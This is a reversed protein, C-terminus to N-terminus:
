KFRRVLNSHLSVLNENFAIYKISPFKQQKLTPLTGSFSCKGFIIYSATNPLEASLTGSVNSVGNINLMGLKGPFRPLTGSLGVSGDLGLASMLTSMEHPISGSLRRLSRLMMNQVRGMQVRRMRNVVPISGSILWNFSLQFTGDVDWIESPLTGSLRSYSIGLSILETISHRLSTMNVIEVHLTGSLRASALRIKKLVPLEALGVSITGSIGRRAYIEATLQEKTQGGSDEIAPPVEFVELITMRTQRSLSSPLSGSILSDALHLTSLDSIWSQPLSGSLSSNALFTISTVDGYPDCGLGAWSCISTTTGWGSNNTWGDGGTSSYFDCLRLCDTYDYDIPCRFGSVLCRPPEVSGDSIDDPDVANYPDLCLVWGHGVVGNSDTIWTM